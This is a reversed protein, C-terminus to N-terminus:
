ENELVKMAEQRLRETAAEKKMRTRDAKGVRWYAADIEEDTMILWPKQPPTPAPQKPRPFAHKFDQEAKRWSRRKSGKSM